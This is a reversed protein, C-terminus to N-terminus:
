VVRDPVLVYGVGRVTQLYLPLKPDEEIKRRLRTVQVDISRELAVGLRTCLDTRSFPRGANAAFLQLLQQESTTLHVPKGGRKLQAREPDFVADGMRVEKHASNVAPAARRLLANLRLVLERPEFPKPLYDDAGKELGTIRDESEGRATLMLIPVQSNARVAETLDFGSEGPMMVDVILLDFAIGKMLARAEAADAAASVRFGNTTLYRQLLKRIREDDDVVLIHAGEVTKGAASM